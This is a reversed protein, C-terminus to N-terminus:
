RFVVRDHVESPLPNVPHIVHGSHSVRGELTKVALEFEKARQARGKEHKLTLMELNKQSLVRVVSLDFGLGLLTVCRNNV